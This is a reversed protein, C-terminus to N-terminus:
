EDNIRGQPADAAQHCGARNCNGGTSADGTVQGAMKKTNPCATTETRAPFANTAVLYFNGGTDTVSIKPSTAGNPFVRVTAGTSVTTNDAKYVTGAFDFPPGGGGGILHCGAVICAQGSKLDGGGHDHAAIPTLNRDACALASGGGDSGGGGGDGGGGGGGDTRGGGNLPVEGVSCGLVLSSLLVLIRTMSGRPLM